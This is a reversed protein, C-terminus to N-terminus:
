DNQFAIWDAAENFALRRTGGRAMEITAKQLLAITDEGSWGRLEAATGLASLARPSLATTVGAPLLTDSTLGLANVLALTEDLSAHALALPSSTMELIRRDGLRTASSISARGEQNLQDYAHRIAQLAPSWLHQRSERLRRQAELRSKRKMFYTNCADRIDAVHHWAVVEIDATTGEVLRSVSQGQRVFMLIPARLREAWALEKGAGWSPFDGIAVIVDSELVKRFDADHVEDAALSGHDIPHTHLAPQHVLVGIQSCHDAIAESVLRVIADQDEDLGTLASAVYVAVPDDAPADFQLRQQETM